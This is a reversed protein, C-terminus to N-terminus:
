DTGDWQDLPELSELKHVKGADEAERLRFYPATLELPGDGEIFYLGYRHSEQNIGLIVTFPAQPESSFWREFKTRGIAHAEHFNRETVRVVRTRLAQYASLRNVKLQDSVYIGFTQHRAIVVEGNGDVSEESRDGPQISGILGALFAGGMILLGVSVSGAAVLRGLQPSEVKKRALLAPVVCILLPYAGALVRSTGDRIIIPFALITLGWVLLWFGGSPLDRRLAADKIAILLPLFLLLTLVGFLVTPLIPIGDPFLSMLWLSDAVELPVRVFSYVLNYGLTAIFVQPRKLVNEIGRQVIESRDEPDEIGIGAAGLEKEAGSWDEGITLGYLTYLANSNAGGGNGFMGLSAQNLLSPTAVALAALLAWLARGKWKASSVWGLWLVLGPLLFMPGPRMMQGIALVFIAALGYWRAKGYVAQLMLPVASLGVAVSLAESLSLPVYIRLFAYALGFYFVAGAMGFTRKISWTALALAAGCILAQILIAGELSGGALGSRFVLFLTNLPRRSSWDTLEGEAAFNVSGYYYALADSWAIRGLTNSYVTNWHIYIGSWCLVVTLVCILSVPILGYRELWGGVSRALAYPQSGRFKESRGGWWLLGGLLLAAPALFRELLGLVSAVPWSFFALVLVLLAIGLIWRGMSHNTKAEM